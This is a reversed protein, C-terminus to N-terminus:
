RRSIRRWDFVRAGLVLGVMTLAIVPGVHWLLQHGPADIPCVFQTGLAGLALAALAALAGTWQAQLPAARRLMAFLWVGPLAGVSLILQVCVPHWPTAVIHAVPDGIATLRTWLLAAWAIAPMLPVVRVIRGGAAGPVSLVFAGAAATLALACTLLAAVVFRADRVRAAIDPRVGLLVTVTAAAAMATLAWLCWRALPSPLPTVPAADRALQAIVLPLPSREPKM